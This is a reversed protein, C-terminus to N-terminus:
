FSCGEGSHTISCNFRALKYKRRRVEKSLDFKSFAYCQSCDVLCKLIHKIKHVHTIMNCYISSSHEFNLVCKLAKSSSPWLMVVQLDDKSCLLVDSVKFMRHFGERWKLDVTGFALVFILLQRM